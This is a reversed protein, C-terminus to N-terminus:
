GVPVTFCFTSGKGPVSEVWIRGGWSEVIRKCIALGAGTGEIESGHLRRFLRFIEQHHEAAIGQGNDTVCIIHEFQKRTTDVVIELPRQADRYKIANGVLNQLVQAIRARDSHIRPLHKVTLTANAAQLQEAFMRAIAESEQALDVEEIKGAPREAMTAAFLDDLLRHMRRAGDYIFAFHRNILETGDAGLEQKLLDSYTMVMRLPEKLDHSAAYLFQDKEDAHARLAENARRLAAETTDRQRVYRQYLGILAGMFLIALTIVAFEIMFLLRVSQARAKHALRHLMVATDSLESLTVQLRGFLLDTSEPRGREILIEQLRIASDRQLKMWHAESAIRLSGKDSIVGLAHDLRRQAFSVQYTSAQSGALAGQMNREVEFSSAVVESAAEVVGRLKDSGQYLTIVYAGTGALLLLACIGFWLPLKALLM